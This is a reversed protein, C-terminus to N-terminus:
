GGTIPPINSGHMCVLLDIALRLCEQDDLVARFTRGDPEFVAIVQNRNSALRRCSFNAPALPPFEKM